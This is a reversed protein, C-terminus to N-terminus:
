STITAPKSSKPPGPCVIFGAKILEEVLCRNTEGCYNEIQPHICDWGGDRCPPLEVRSANPDMFRNDRLHNGPIPM